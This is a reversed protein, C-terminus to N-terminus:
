APSHNRRELWAAVEAACEATSAHTTDVSFDYAHGEHIFAAQRRALGLPRDGRARERRELEDVACSVGILLPALPRLDEEFYRAVSARDFVTDFIVHQGHRAHAAVAAHMARCLAEIRLESTAPDLDKWYGPPEMDRFANLQVHLHAEPLVAQLAKALSTKGASSTGNLVLVRGTPRRM